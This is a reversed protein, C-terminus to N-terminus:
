RSQPKVPRNKVPSQRYIIYSICNIGYYLGRYGLGFGGRVVRVFNYLGGRGLMRGGFGAVVLGPGVIGCGVWCSLSSLPAPIKSSPDSFLLFIQSLLVRYTLFDPEFKLVLVLVSELEPQLQIVLEFEPVPEFELM